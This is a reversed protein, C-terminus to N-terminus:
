TGTEAAVQFRAAVEAPIDIAHMRQNALRRV